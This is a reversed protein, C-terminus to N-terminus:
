DLAALRAQVDARMADHVRQVEAVRAELAQAESARGLAQLCAQATRLGRLQRLFGSRDIEASALEDALCALAAEARGQRWLLEALATAAVRTAFPTELGQARALSDRLLTEAEADDGILGLLEGLNHMLGARRWDELAPRNLLNRVASAYHRGRQAVAALMVPDGQQAALRHVLILSLLLNVQAMQMAALSGNERAHSLARLHLLESQVLDARRAHVHAACSLAVPLLQFHVPQQALALAHQALPLAADQLDLESLAFAALTAASICLAEDGTRRALANAHLAHRACDHLEGLHWCARALTLGAQAQLAEDLPLQLAQKSLAASEQWRQAELAQLAELLPSPPSAHRTMTAAPLPLWDLTTGWAVCFLPARSADFAGARIVYM